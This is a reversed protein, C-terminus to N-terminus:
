DLNVIPIHIRIRAGHRDERPEVIEIRGQCHVLYESVMALGLGTGDTDLDIAARGRYFPKLVQQLEDAAFGPGDDEIEFEISGKSSRLLVRIEGGEPSFKVANSLLQEFMGQMQEAIGHFPVPQVLAKIRLGKAVIQPKLGAVAADYLQKLDIGSREGLVPNENLQSYRVLEECVSQLKGANQELRECRRALEEDASREAVAQLQGCDERIADLPADIERTVNQMFQYKAQELDLLRARLWELRDGLLRLDRPGRVAIPEGFRGSGLKRISQDLRRISRHLVAMFVIFFGVSFTMLALTRIMLQQELESAQQHLGEAQRAVRGSVEEWLQNAADRLGRFAEEVPLKPNDNVDFATIQDHILREKELLETILLTLRNDLSRKLLEDTSHRFATRVNEYSEREYPQRLAPDSFLVFLKAKREIDNVQQLVLRMAKMQDATQYLAREGLSATERMGIGAYTLAIAVPIMTVLFGGVMLYKLSFLRDALAKPTLRAQGFPELLWHVAALLRNGVAPFFPKMSRHRVTPYRSSACM